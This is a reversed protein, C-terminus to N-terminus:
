LPMRSNSCDNISSIYSITYLIIHNVASWRQQTAYIRVNSLLTHRRGISPLQGGHGTSL